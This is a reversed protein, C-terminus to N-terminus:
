TIWDNWYYNYDSIALGFPYTLNKIITKRSRNEISICEIAKTGADTYCLEDNHWDIALSNPLKVYDGQLFISRASGDM